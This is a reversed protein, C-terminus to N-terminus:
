ATPASPQARRKRGGFWGMLGLGGAFLPLTAPLPTVIRANGGGPIQLDAFEFANNTTTLVISLFPTSSGDFTVLDHGIGQIAMDSGTFTGEVTGTGDLGSYFTITNFADPSGWLFQLATVPNSFDFTASGGAQISTFQHQSDNWGAVGSGPTAANEFPSRYQNQVSGPPPTIISVLSGGAWMPNFSSAPLVDFGPTPVLAFDNTDQSVTIANAYQAFTFFAAVLAVQKLISTM